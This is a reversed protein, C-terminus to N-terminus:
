PCGAVFVDLFYFFDSGDLLGDPTGYGPDNPDSSGSLDAVALNGGVFQDLFYFFDSGDVQGDPVGYAADNPDTSGSLDARCGAVRGEVEFRNKFNSVSDNFRYGVFTAIGSPDPAGGATNTTAMWNFSPTTSAASVRIWYTRNAEFVFGGPATWTYDNQGALVDTTTLVIERVFPLDAGSWIEVQPEAGVNPFNMTLRVRDLQYDDTIPIMFGAAKYVTTSGSGFLTSNVIPDPLNGMIIDAHGIGTTLAAALAAAHLTRM